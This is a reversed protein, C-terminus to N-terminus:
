IIVAVLGSRFDFGLAQDPIPCSLWMWSPVGLGQPVNPQSLTGKSVCLRDLDAVTQAVCSGEVRPRAIGMIAQCLSHATPLPSLWAEGTSCRGPGLPRLRSLRARLIPPLCPRTLLLASRSYLQTMKYRKTMEQRDKGTTKRTKKRQGRTKTDIPITDM